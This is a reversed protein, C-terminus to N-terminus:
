NMGAVSASVKNEVYYMEIEGKNKANIKGRSTFSFKDKTKQYTAESINVMGPESNQEMRAATNVTDGWIDYAFKRTGVVGAVVPGIHIGVRIEFYPENIASKEHKIQEVFDQMELAAKITNEIFDRNEVHFGGACMYADGITKIKELGYKVVIDDFISFYTDLLAVLDEASLKEAIKTFGYVDTFLVSVEDYRRPVAKGYQKLEAATDAPLINLLLSESLNRSETLALNLKHRRRSQIYFGGAVLVIAILTGGLGYNIWQKHRAELLTVEKEKKLIEIEKGKVEEVRKMELADMKKTNSVNFISDRIKVFDKYAKLAYKYNGLEDNVNALESYGYKM